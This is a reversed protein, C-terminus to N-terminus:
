KAPYLVVETFGEYNYYYDHFKLKSMGTCKVEIVAIVDVMYNIIYVNLLM